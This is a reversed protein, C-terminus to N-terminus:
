SIIVVLQLKSDDTHIIFAVNFDPYTLLTDHSM